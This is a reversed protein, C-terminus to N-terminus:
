LRLSTRQVESHMKLKRTNTYFFPHEGQITTTLGALPFPPISSVVERCESVGRKWAESNSNTECEYLIGTDVLIYTSKCSTALHLRLDHQTALM